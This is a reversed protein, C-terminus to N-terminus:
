ECRVRANAFAPITTPIQYNLKWMHEVNPVTPCGVNVGGRYMNNCANDDPEPVPLNVGVGLAYATVVVDLRSHARVPTFHAEAELQQGRTVTCRTGSCSPSTVRSPCVANPLDTCCAHFSAQAGTFVFLVSFVIIKFM